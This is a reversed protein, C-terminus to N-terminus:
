IEPHGQWTRPIGPFVRIVGAREHLLMEFIATVAGMPQDMQMREPQPSADVLGISARGMLTFGPEPADHTQGHGPTCFVREWIELLWEATAGGGTRAHLIAAWPLSWGAWLGMGQFTM